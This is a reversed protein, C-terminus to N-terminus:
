AAGLAARIFFQQVIQMKCAAVIGEGLDNRALDDLCCPEAHVIDGRHALPNEIHQALRVLALLFKPTTRRPSQHRPYM